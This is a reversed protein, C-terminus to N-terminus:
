SADGVQYLSLVVRATPGVQAAGGLAPSLVPQVSYVVVGVGWEYGDSGGRDALLEYASGARGDSQIRWGARRLETRYFAEVQAPSVPVSFTVSRDFQDVGRDKVAKAEFRSRVPVSLASVVDAPPEGGAAIRAVFGRAPLARLSMGPVPRGSGATPTAPPSSGAALAVVAGLVLLTIAIGLVVLAPRM